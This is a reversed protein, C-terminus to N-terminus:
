EKVWKMGERRMGAAEAFRVAAAVDEASAGISQILKVASQIRREVYSKM